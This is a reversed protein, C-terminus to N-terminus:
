VSGEHRCSRAPRRVLMARSPMQEGPMEQAPGAGPAMTVFEADEVILEM